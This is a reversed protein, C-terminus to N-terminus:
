VGEDGDDREMVNVLLLRLLAMKIESNVGVKKLRFDFFRLHAVKKIFKTVNNCHLM